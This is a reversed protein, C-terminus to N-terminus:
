MNSKCKQQTKTPSFIGMTKLYNIIVTQKSKPILLSACLIFNSSVYICLYGYKIPADIYIYVSLTDMCFLYIYSAKLEEM